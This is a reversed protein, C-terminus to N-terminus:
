LTMKVDQNANTSANTNHIIDWAISNSQPSYGSPVENKATKQGNYINLCWGSASIGNSVNAIKEVYNADGVANVVLPNLMLFGAQWVHPNCSTKASTIYMAHTTNPALGTAHATITLMKSSHNWALEATGVPSHVLQVTVSKNASATNGANGANGAAHSTM